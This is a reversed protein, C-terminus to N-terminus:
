SRIGDQNEKEEDTRLKTKLISVKPFIDIRKKSFATFLFWSIM